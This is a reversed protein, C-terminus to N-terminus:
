SRSPFIGQLAIIYNIVLVPQLNNIAQGGGTNGTTESSLTTDSATGFSNVGNGAVVSGTPNDTDGESAANVSTTHSHGPLNAETLTVTESGFRQGIRRDTLGPGNGAHVPARGRLDPLAFTTMGDGGYTTGLLSFLASNQSISLLQGDCFAWGRPAFNGAFIKIIGLFDDM